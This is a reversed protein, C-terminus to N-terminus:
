VDVIRCDLLSNCLDQQGDRLPKEESVALLSAGRASPLLAVTTCLLGAPGLCFAVAKLVLDPNLVLGPYRLADLRPLLLVLFFAIIICLVCSYLAIECAVRM